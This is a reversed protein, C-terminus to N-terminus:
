ITATRKTMLRDNGYLLLDILKSNTYFFFSDTENLDNMHIYRNTNYFYCRLFYHAATEAKIACVCLPNLIGRFGHRFKHYRLHSFGLRLRRFLKIQM